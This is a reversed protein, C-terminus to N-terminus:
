LGPVISKSKFLTNQHEFYELPRTFENCIMDTAGFMMKMYDVADRHLTTEVYQVM